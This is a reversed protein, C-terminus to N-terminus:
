SKNLKKLMRIDDGVFRFIDFCGIIRSSVREKYYEHLQKMDLNTSIITKCPRSMNNIQRINIINLLESYRSATQSETGLDDIILLEADYINKYAEDAYDEDKFAKAKHESITDFLIPAPQYLVTRGAKLLEMAICNSMFTKGVGTPGSFFLNKENPDAINEIFRECRDKLKLINERPSIKIGYRKEDVADSFCSEDFASFNETEALRLNSQNYLIDLLQQRYCTCKEMGTSGQAYGTDRCKVCRYVPDLYDASYGAEVLLRLKKEKLDDMSASLEYLVDEPSGTGLIIMKNYKIGTFQISRDTEEIEPVKSYVEDRRAALLDFTQKQIIEYNRKIIEHINRDM